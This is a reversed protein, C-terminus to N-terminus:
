ASRRLVGDLGPKRPLRDFGQGLPRHRPCRPYGQCIPASLLRESYPPLGLREIPPAAINPLGPGARALPALPQLEVGGASPDARIELLAVVLVIAPLQEEGLCIDPRPAILRGGIGIRKRISLFAGRGLFLLFRQLPTLAIPVRWPASNEKRPSPIAPAVPPPPNPHPQRFCRGFRSLDWAWCALLPQIPEYPTIASSACFRKRMTAENGGFAACGPTEPPKRPNRLGRNFAQHVATTKLTTEPTACRITHDTM